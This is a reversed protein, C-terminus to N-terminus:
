RSITMSTAPGAGYEASIQAISVTFSGANLLTSQEGATLGWEAADVTTRQKEGSPQTVVVEYMEVEEGLPADFGNWTDGGIRTRRIWSVSIDGSTTTAYRLHCPSLPRLGVGSFGLTAETYSPDSYGKSAPGFLYSRSVGRSSSALSLQPTAESLMVFRAGVPWSDPQVGDTGAQGRILGSLRYTNLDVLEATQFQIIEWDSTDDTGIAALNDGALLAALTTSSLAGNVM